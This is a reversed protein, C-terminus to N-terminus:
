AGLLGTSRKKRARAVHTGARGNDTDPSARKLGWAAMVKARESEPLSIMQRRIHVPVGIREPPAIIAGRETYRSDAGARGPQACTTSCFRRKAFESNADNVRRYFKAGCRQCCKGGDTEIPPVTAAAAKQVAKHCTHSCFQRRLFDDHNERGDRRVMLGGCAPNGCYRPPAAPAPGPPAHTSVLGLRICLRQVSSYARKLSAATSKISEGAAILRRVEDIEEPAWLIRTQRPYSM